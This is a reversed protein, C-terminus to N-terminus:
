FVFRLAIQMTRNGSKNLIKGFDSNRMNGVPNFINPHNFVNYAEARLHFERGEALPFRKLMAFDANWNGPGRLANRGLSGFTNRTTPAAFSSPDFYGAMKQDTTGETYRIPAVLNPRDDGVSDFNWDEGLTVNFPTGSRITVNGSAQWGGLLRRAWHTANRWLPLDYVYFTKFVHRAGVEAKEGDWNLPNATQLQGASTPDDGSYELAKSWVYSSRIVLGRSFRVDGSVQLADYWSRARSHVIGINGYGAIPRRAEVNSISANGTWVPLNGPLEQLLKYARNGVYSAEVTVAQTIQRAVTLNWQISYPTRFDRDFGVVNDLRPPYKFNTIDATFPTPPTAYVTTRSTGWPDVLSRTEGGSARPRWPVGEATWLKTQASNYAYYIGAGGRIVTKGNGRADYAFGFRPAFNNHDQEFFGKPVGADGNFALNVPANPYQDSHHDLMFASTRGNKESAPTYLEYRLGPTITLRQTIKWQDEIFFFDNWNHLDYDLIGSTSFTAARGMIFDAYSYGFVNGGTPRGGAPTSSFRGDFTFSTGDQDNLQRVTDRQLEGGFKLNHRGHTWNVTSGVRYNSQDFLSLFGQHTNFGDNIVIRPLYKRAGEQSDPWIAGFDALNRGLNANGRNASLKAMAFRSQVVLNPTAIWTHRASATDQRNTNVQPGFAPVNANAATNAQDFHGWTRFYSFQLSHAQNFTHDIKALLENNRTPNTYSWVFRDGYNGVTPILSMLNQAVPDLLHQPIINGPIPEGTDPHYLQRPFQSFDGKVMAATPFRITNQFGNASDDYIQYSTFFFTKDKRIPGGLTGGGQKLVNDPKESGSQNRSWSNANLSKHRFFYFASGHLQNTGSKTIVNFMGASQKGFEASTNSTSVNVEQIAEPNPFQLASNRFSGTNESGDMYFSNKGRRGGNVSAYTGEINQVQSGDSDNVEVGPALEAIKLSNRSSIPLDVIFQRQVNMSVQASVTDIRSANAVVEVSESVPGVELSLDARTTKNVEVVIGKVLAPRFGTASSRLTYTGPLVVNFTYRGDTDTKQTQRVQTAQNILTLEVGPVATGSPDLVVGQVSGTTDAWALVYSLVLFIPLLVWHGCKDQLPLM